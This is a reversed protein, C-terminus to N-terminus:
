WLFQGGAMLIAFTAASIAGFWSSARGISIPLRGAIKGTQGNMAFIYTKGNYQYTFMWVPLLVYTAGVDKMRVQTDHISVSSYGRITERLLSGMNERIIGSVRPYVDNQDMDYKEALYGSLYSMQFDTLDNYHYPELISM